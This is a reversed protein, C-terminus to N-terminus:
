GTVLLSVGRVLYVISIGVVIWRSWRRFGENTMGLLVKAAISTGILALGVASVYQWMPLTTDWAAAFTGFYAIRAVHGFTQCVAKTAVIARRDLMSLQFFLDLIHGAAGAILQLTMVFLGAVFPAGPRTIDPTLSKPLCDAVFVISGLMLYVLAKDPVFAILRMLLFAVGAGVIYRGVIHWEVLRWWLAARWGNAGLQIIGFLVMAPAVDLFVLLIGLLILGGAMGFVGSIFSTVLVSVGILGATAAGIM